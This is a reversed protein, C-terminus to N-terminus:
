QVIQHEDFTIRHDLLSEGVFSFWGTVRQGWLVNPLWLGDDDWMEDYPIEDFRFWRPIAEDTETPTGEYGGATFVHAHIRPMDDEAHFFLEGAYSVGTPTILLEEQTERIACALPTEGPEVRGGPGNIKGAGLGRKKRILLVQHGDHVFMLTCTQEPQWNDWDITDIKM